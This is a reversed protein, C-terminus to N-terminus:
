VAGKEILHNGNMNQLIPPVRDSPNVVPAELKKVTQQEHKKHALEFYYNIMAHAKEEPIHKINNVGVKQLWNRMVYEDSFGNAKKIKLLHGVLDNSLEEQLSADTDTMSLGCASLMSYRRLYSITKGVAQAWSGIPKGEKNTEREVKSGIRFYYYQGSSHTLLTGVYVMDPEDISSECFQSCSLGHKFFLPRTVDLVSEIKAYTYRAQGIQGATDKFVDRAEGEMASRAAAIENIEASIRSSKSLSISEM